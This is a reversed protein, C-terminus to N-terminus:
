VADPEAGDNAHWWSPEGSAVDGMVLVRDDCTVGVRREAEVVEGDFCHPVALWAVGRLRPLEGSAGNSARNWLNTIWGVLQGTRGVPADNRLHLITSPEFRHRGIQIARHLVVEVIDLADPDDRLETGAPLMIDGLFWPEALCGGRFFVDVPHGPAFTRDDIRVVRAPTFRTPLGQRALWVRTGAAAVVATGDGLALRTDRALTLEALTGKDFRADTGSECPLGCVVATHDLAVLVPVGDRDRTVVRVGTPLDVDSEIAATM